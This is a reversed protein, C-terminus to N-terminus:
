FVIVRKLLKRHIDLVQIANSITQASVLYNIGLLEITSSKGDGAEKVVWEAAEETIYCAEKLLELLEPIIKDQRAKQEQKKILKSLASILNLYEGSVLNKGTLWSTVTDKDPVQSFNIPSVFGAAKLFLAIDLKGKQYSSIFHQGEDATLHEQPEIGRQKMLESFSDKEKEDQIKNEIKELIEFIHSPRAAVMYIDNGFIEELATRIGTMASEGCAIVLKGDERNGIPLVQLARAKNISMVDLWSIDSIDMDPNLEYYAIKQQAALTSFLTTEDIFGLAILSDGLRSGIKKQYYLGIDLQEPYILGRDLLLKGLQQKNDMTVYSPDYIYAIDEAFAYYKNQKPDHIVRQEMDGALKMLDELSFINIKLRSNKDVSGKTIMDDFEVHKWHRNPKNNLFLAIFLMIIIIAYAVYTIMVTRSNLSDYTWVVSASLILLIILVPSLRMYNKKMNSQAYRLTNRRKKNKDQYSLNYWMGVFNWTFVM